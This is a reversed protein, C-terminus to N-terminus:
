KESSVTKKKTSEEKALTTLSAIKNTNIQNNLKAIKADILDMRQKITVEDGFSDNNIRSTLEALEQYRRSNLSKTDRLDRELRQIDSDQLQVKDELDQNKAILSTKVAQLERGQTIIKDNMELLKETMSEFYDAVQEFNVVIGMMKDFLASQSEFYTTETQAYAEKSDLYKKYVGDLENKTATERVKKIDFSKYNIKLDDQLTISKQDEDEDNIRVPSNTQPKSQSVPTEITTQRMQQNQNNRENKNNSNSNSNSNSSTNSGSNSNTNSNRDRNDRSDNRNDNRNDNRSETRAENRTNSQQVNNREVRDTRPEEKKVEVKPAVTIPAPEPKPEPKPEETKEEELDEEEIVASSVEEKIEKTQPTPAVAEKPEVEAVQTNVPESKAEEVKPTTGDKQNKEIWLDHVTNVFEDINEQSALSLWELWEEKPGLYETFISEDIFDLVEHPDRPFGDSFYQKSALM